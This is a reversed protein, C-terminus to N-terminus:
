LYYIILRFSLVCVTAVTGFDVFRLFMSLMLIESVCICSRESEQISVSIVRSPPPTISTKHIWAEFIDFKTRVVYKQVLRFILYYVLLVYYHVLIYNGIGGRTM